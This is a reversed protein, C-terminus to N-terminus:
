AFDERDVAAEEMAKRLADGVTGQERHSSDRGGEDQSEKRSRRTIDGTGASKRRDQESTAM